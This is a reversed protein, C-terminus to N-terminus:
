FPYDPKARVERLHAAAADLAKRRQKLDLQDARHIPRRVLPVPDIRM